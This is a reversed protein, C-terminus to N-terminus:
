SWSPHLKGHKASKTTSITGRWRAAGTRTNNMRKFRDTLRRYKRYANMQEATPTRMHYEERQHGLFSQYEEDSMNYKAYQGAPGIKTGALTGCESASSASDSLDTTVGFVSSGSGYYGDDDLPISDDQHPGHNQEVYDWRPNRLSSSGNNKQKEYNYPNTEWPKPKATGLKQEAGISNATVDNSRAIENSRM